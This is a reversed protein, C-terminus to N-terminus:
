TENFLASGEPDGAYEEDKGIAVLPYLLCESICLHYAFAEVLSPLKLFCIHRRYAAVM